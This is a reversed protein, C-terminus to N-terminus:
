LKYNFSMKSDWTSYDGKGGIEEGWSDFSQNDLGGVRGQSGWREEKGRRRNLTEM